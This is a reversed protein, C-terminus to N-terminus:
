YLETNIELIIFVGDPSKGQVEYLTNLSLLKPSKFDPIDPPYTLSYVNVDFEQNKEKKTKVKKDTRLHDLYQKFSVYGFHENDLKAKKDLIECEFETEPIGDDLRFKNFEESKCVSPSVFQSFLFTVPSKREIAKLIYLM